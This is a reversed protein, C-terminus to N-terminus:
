NLVVKEYFFIQKLEDYIMFYYVGQKLNSLDITKGSHIEEEYIKSGLVNIITLRALDLFEFEIIVFDSTPNPYIKPAIRRKEEIGTTYVQGNDYYIAQTITFHDNIAKVPCFLSLQLFYMGNGNNLVYQTTDVTTGSPGIINWIVSIDNGNSIISDIFATDVIGFYFSCNSVTNGLSDLALNNIYPNNYVYNTDVPIIVTHDSTDGCFNILEINHIGPCLQNLYVYNAYTGALPLGDYSISFPGNGLINLSLVGNCGITDSPQSFSSISSPQNQIINLDLFHVSDCGFITFSSDSYLGSSNYILGNIPWLYNGCSNVTWLSDYQDNIVLNLISISDCGTSNLTTDYYIGSNFYIMGDVPWLFSECSAINWISDTSNNIILNLISVLNCGAVNLSTDYYVGSTNYQLGTVPWIYHDCQVVNWLSDSSQFVTLNLSIISDCGNANFLSDFYVGTNSLWTNTQNWYFSDCAVETFTTIDSNNLTLYLNLVTDCSVQHSYFGSSYYWSNNENWYFSDCATEYFGFTNIWSFTLDLSIVSDCGSANTVIHYLNQVSPSYQYWQNNVVWLFSDACVQQSSTSSSYAGTSFHLNSIISDCGLYSLITNSYDGPTSVTVTQSQNWWYYPPSCSHVTDNFVQTQPIYLDLKVISDCGQINTLIHQDTTNSNTYTTGNIWTFSDCVAITETTVDPCTVIRAIGNRVNQGIGSFYGGCVLKGNSQFDSCTVPGYSFSQMGIEYNGDVAVRQLGYPGIEGHLILRKDPLETVKHLTSGGISSYISQGNLNYRQYFSYPGRFILITDQQFKIVESGAPNITVNFATNVTGNPHLLAVKSNLNPYVNTFDGAVAVQGYSNVDLATIKNNFILGPNFSLDLVGAASIKAIRNINTGNVNTFNGAIFYDGNPLEHIRTIEGNVNVPFTNDLTGNTNLRALYWIGQGNYQSFKGGIIIKGSSEILCANVQDNAGQGVNFTPDYDGDDTLRIIRPSPINEFYSFNGVAIVKDDTQVQIDLVETDFGEVNPFGEVLAGNAELKAFCKKRKLNALTFGGTIIVDDNSLHHLESVTSNFVSNGAYTNDIPGNSNIRFLNKVPINNYNQISGALIIKDDSQVACAEIQGAISGLSSFTNDITGNTNFRYVQQNSGTLTVVKGAIIYKGNSQVGIAKFRQQNFLNSGPSVFTNDIAGNAQLRLVGSYVVGNFTTFDGVAILQGNPLEEVEWITANAGTGTSFTPDWTGNANLRAIKKNVNANGNIYDFAGYIIIKGSTLVQSGFVIGGPFAPFFTLDKSGDSNLRLIPASASPLNVTGLPYLSGSVIIKGDPQISIHSISNYTAFISHFSTDVNGNPLLRAITNISVGDFDQFNGAVILKGDAQLASCNIVGFSTLDISPGFGIHEGKASSAFTTDLFFTQGIVFPCAFLLLLFITIKKM